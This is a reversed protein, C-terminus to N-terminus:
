FRTCGDKTVIGLVHKPAEVREKTLMYAAEGIIEINKVVAFYMMM